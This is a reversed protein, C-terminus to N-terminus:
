PTKAPQRPSSAAGPAALLGRWGALVWRPNPGSSLPAVPGAKALGGVTKPHVRRASANVGPAIPRVM